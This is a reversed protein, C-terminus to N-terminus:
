WEWYVNFAEELKYTSAQNHDRLRESTEDIKRNLRKQLSSVFLDREFYSDWMPIRSLREIVIKQVLGQM